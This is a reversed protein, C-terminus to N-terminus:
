VKLGELLNPLPKNELIEKCRITPIEIQISLNFKKLYLQLSDCILKAPPLPEM